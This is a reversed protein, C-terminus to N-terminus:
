DQRVKEMGVSFQNEVLVLVLLIIAILSLALEALM